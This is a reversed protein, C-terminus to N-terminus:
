TSTHVILLPTHVGEVEVTVIVTFATGVTDLAPLGCVIQLVALAVSAAFLGTAPVPVHDTILPGLKNAVWNLLVAFGMAM